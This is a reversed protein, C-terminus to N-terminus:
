MHVAGMADRPPATNVMVAVAIFVAMTVLAEILLVRRFARQIAYDDAHSSDTAPASRGAAGPRPLRNLYCFRNFAGLALMVAVLAIKLMFHRGYDTRWLESITAFRRWANYVGTGLVLPLAVTALSSLRYAMANFATPPRDGDFVGLAFAVVGGGWASAVLIHLWDMIEHATFDGQDAAHGTASRTFATVATGALLLWLWIRRHPRLRGAAWAIWLVAISIVRVAWVHGYHTKGLVVLLVPGLSSYPRGSLVHARILFIGVSNVTLLALCVAFLRWLTLGAQGHRDGVSAPTIWALCALTGIATCLAIIDIAALSLGINDTM